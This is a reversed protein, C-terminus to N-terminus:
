PWGVLRKNVLAESDRSKADADYSAAVSELLDGVFPYEGVLRRAWGRYKAALEREQGGGVKRWHVGRANYAGRRFGSGIQAAAVTQIAHCVPRCPWVGDDDAPATSLVQGISRDSFDARGRLACLHRAEVIWQVLVESDINGRDNTGPIRRARELVDYAALALKDQRRPDDVRWEPPDEGGDSRRYALTVLHAFAAPSEALQREINPIGHKSRDLAEIFMFELQAMEDRTIGARVDLVALAKSVDYRRLQFTDKSESDMMAISVLMRKLRSTEVKELNMHVAYFAARPRQVDLLRDVIETLETETFSGWRPSVTRWYEDRMAESCEAVLQWTQECFPACRLLRVTTDAPYSQAISRLLTSREDSAMAHLLGVLFHDYHDCRGVDPALAGHIIEKTTAENSACPSAFLGVTFPAASEKLLAILGDVRKENWIQSIAATRLRDIRQCRVNIDLEDDYLEDASDDVWDNAFLWGHQAVPDAPTLRAYADRARDRVADGLDLADGHPTFAFRRIRERLAAKKGDHNTVAAWADVLDWVIGQDEETIVHVREVLDGLTREDHGPEWALAIDLARRAFAVSERESLAQGAGSADSRWTPRFSHNGLEPGLACQKICVQWGVDPFERVLSELAKLRESLSAATQPMWSRFISELSAIPKNLWNDDIATRSLQALITTVAGLNHPNWALCELAWLLGTRPCGGFIGSRAPELLSLLVPASQRLDKKLLALFENPAAEAYSPLDGNHSTLAALTLPTLLHRIVLAVRGEVDFGLRERFLSNGHLALIVLTERVAQRVVHSHNRLKGYIGAFKRQDTPLDLAPDSESLVYEALRMFDELHEAIVFGSVAFLADIKSTVGRYEGASWVPSDDQLRLRAIAEELQDYSCGALVSLLERDAPSRAHWAGVLAMPILPRVIDADASWRPTKIAPIPSLQRRLVTPSRGSARGLQEARHSDIGMDDLAREFQPQTLLDLAINPTSNVANRPRVVVCHLRRFLGILEREVEDTTVIPIFPASSVSLTKLAEPSRFVVALDAIQPAIEEAQFLSALFALSEEASDSTVVLPAEPPKALWDALTQHHVEISPAFMSPLMPPDSADAWQLWCKDLTEFGQTAISLRDALWIQAAISGELWQELDSADLARVDKWKGEATKDNAWKIKGTWNRPTVFIFTTEAREAAPISRTRAAYDDSAKKAPRESTGFEWGSQGDPIWPTAAAADTQGDWGRREANDYAPFDVHRLDRGTSHILRRLLVPLDRRADHYKDAWDEIQRAKITLFPPVYTTVTIARNREELRRQEREAQLALLEDRDAGFARELRLAM